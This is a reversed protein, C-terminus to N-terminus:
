GIPKMGFTCYYKSCMYCKPDNLAAQIEAGLLDVEEKGWGQRTLFVLCSAEASDLLYQRWYFGLEKEHKEKPWPGIPIKFTKETVSVCGVDKLAKAIGPAVTDHSQRGSKKTSMTSHKSWKILANDPPLPNGNAFMNCNYDQVEIWGGPKLAQFAQQYLKSWDCISGTMNRIFIFDFSNA